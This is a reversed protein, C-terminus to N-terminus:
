SIVTPVYQDGKLVPLVIRVETGKGDWSNVFMGYEDGFYVKIRHNINQIGIGINSDIGVSLTKHIAALKSQEIGDGNDMIILEIHNDIQKGSIQILGHKKINKLGHQVANELLPQLIIKLTYLYYLDKDIDWVVDFHEGFRIRHIDLYCKAHNVEDCLPILNKGKSVSIRFLDSLAIVMRVASNNEGLDIENKISDLTNYLFHPNIQAQLFNLELEKKKLNEIYNVKIQQEFQALMEDFGRGIEGIEDNRGKNLFGKSARLIRYHLRRLGLTLRRIFVFSIVTFVIMSIGSLVFLLNRISNVSGELSSQPVLLASTWDTLAIDEYWIFYSNNDVTILQGESAETKNKFSQILESSAKGSRTGLSHFVYTGEKNVIFIEELPKEELNNPTISVISPVRVALRLYGVKRFTGLSFIPRILTFQYQLDAKQEYIWENSDTLYSEDVMELLKNIPLWYQGDSLKDSHLSFFQIDEIETARFANIYRIADTIERNMMFIGKKSYEDPNELAEQVIPSLMLNDAISEYFRLNFDISMNMQKLVKQYSDSVNTIILQQAEQYYVYSLTVIPIVITVLYVIMLKHHLKL